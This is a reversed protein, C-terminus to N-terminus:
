IFIMNIVLTFIMTSMVYDYLYGRSYHQNNLKFYNVFKFEKTLREQFCTKKKIDM